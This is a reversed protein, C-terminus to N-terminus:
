MNNEVPELRYGHQYISSLKWGSAPTLGMKKRLRSAHTDVTRTNLGPNTSWVSTLLHERSLVRGRHRFVYLALDFEKETLNIVEGDRKVQRRAIDFTFPPCAIQVDGSQLRRGLVNIRALLEMQRVPKTLYDDAGSELAHVVDKESDKATVFVVPIKNDLDKRLWDLVDMGSREPLMWDLILIDFSSRKFQQELASASAFVTCHHGVDELWCSLLHAQCEDDELIAIHYGDSNM